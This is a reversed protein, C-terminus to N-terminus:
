QASAADIEEVPFAEAFAQLEDLTATSSSFALLAGSNLTLSVKNTTGETVAIGTRRQIRIKTGTQMGMGLQALAGLGGMATSSTAGTLSAEISKEGKTYTRSTGTMGLVKESSVEGARYGAVEDKFLSAVKSQGLQELLEIAWRAEELAGAIDGKEYLAKAEDLAAAPDEAAFAGPLGLSMGVAVVVWALNKM